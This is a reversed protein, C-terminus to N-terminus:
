ANDDEDEDLVRAETERIGGSFVEPRPGMGPPPFPMGAQVHIHAKLRKKVMGTLARRVAPLMLLFGTVDTLLGPTLLFAAGVLVMLGSILNDTPLRGEHMDTQVDTLVMLGQHKAVTAGIVGTVVVLAITHLPGIWEAVQLLLAMDVLPILVFLLCHM